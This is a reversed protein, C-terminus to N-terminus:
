SVRRCVNSPRLGSSTSTSTSRAVSSLPAAIRRKAAACRVALERAMTSSSVSATSELPMHGTLAKRHWCDNTHQPTGDVCVTMRRLAFPAIHQMAELPISSSRSSTIGYTGRAQM